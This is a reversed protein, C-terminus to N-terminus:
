TLARLVRAQREQPSLIVDRLTLTVGPRVTDSVSVSVGQVVEVGDPTHIRDGPLFGTYPQDVSDRSDIVATIETRPDNFEDLQGDAMRQIEEISSPAGIELTAEAGSADGLDSWGGKWRVLLRSVTKMDGRKRYDLLNGSTPDDEDTPSRLTATRTMGRGNKPWAQFVPYTEGVNMSIDCYTAQLEQFFQLLTSGVKTAVDPIPEAASGDSFHDDDFDFWIDQVEGRNQAEELAIRMTKTVSQGPVSSPYALVKTSGSSMAVVTYNTAQELLTSTQTETAICWGFVAKNLAAGNDANTIKAAVYHTGASLTVAVQSVGLWNQGQVSTIQQGDIYFDGADDAIGFFVYDGAVPITFEGFFYCTGPTANLLTGGSAWLLPIDLAPLKQLTDTTLQENWGPTAENLGGALLVSGVNIADQVTGLVTVTGWSSHDYTAAPWGFHRDEEIPSRGVGSTPYVVADDLISLAGRGSYTVARAADEATGVTVEEFSELILIFARLPGWYFVLCDTGDNALDDLIPDDVRFTISGAGTEGLMDHWEWTRPLSRDITAVVTSFDWNQYLECRLPQETANELLVGPLWPYRIAAGFRLGEPTTLNLGPILPTRSAGNVLLTPM